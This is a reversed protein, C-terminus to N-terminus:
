PSVNISKVFPKIHKWLYWLGGALLLVAIVADFKHWYHRFLELNEGFVIGVYTLGYCWILSGIFTYIIFPWLRANLAGAPLSIFTRVIPLMRAIFFAMDGYKQTWSRALEFEKPSVLFFKGYKKVFPEGGWQGLWYSPMSGLVCGIAGALAALHINMEGQQVLFGAYPMILESPLPVNCSEIAMMLAVGAYGFSDIGWHVFALAIALAWHIFETIWHLLTNM